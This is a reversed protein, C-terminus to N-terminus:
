KGLKVAYIIILDDNLWYYGSGRRSLPFGCNGLTIWLKIWKIWLMVLRIWLNDVNIHKDGVVRENFKFCNYKILYLRM